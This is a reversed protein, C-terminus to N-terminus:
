GKPNGKGIYGLVKRIYAKTQPYPPVGGYSKVASVGANYAALALELDFDFAELLERLYAAGAMVNQYPDLLEERRLNGVSSPKLQMLGVAGQSSIVSPDFNSEVQIIAELLRPDLGYTSSAELIIEQFSISVETKPKDELVPVDIRFFPGIENPPVFAQSESINSAGVFVFLFLVIKLVFIRGLNHLSLSM